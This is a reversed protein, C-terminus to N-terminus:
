KRLTKSPQHLKTQAKKFLSKIAKRTIQSFGNRALFKMSLARRIAYKEQTIDVTGQKLFEFSHDGRRLAKIHADSNVEIDVTFFTNSWETLHDIEAVIPYKRSGILLSGPLHYRTKKVTYGDCLPLLTKYTSETIETEYEARSYESLYPGKFTAFFKPKKNGNRSKRLRGTMLSPINSSKKFIIRYAAEVTSDAFYSQEFAAQDLKKLDVFKKLRSATIFIKLERETAASM